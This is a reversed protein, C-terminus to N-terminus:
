QRGSSTTMPLGPYQHTTSPLIRKNIDQERFMEPTIVTSNEWPYTVYIFPDSALTNLDNQLVLPRRTEALADPQSPVIVFDSEAIAANVDEQRCRYLPFGLVNVGNEIAIYNRNLYERAKLASEQDSAEPNGIETIIENRTKAYDLGMRELMKFNEILYNNVESCMRKLEPFATFM